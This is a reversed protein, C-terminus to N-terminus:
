KVMKGLNTYHLLQTVHGVQFMTLLPLQKM